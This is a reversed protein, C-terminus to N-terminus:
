AAEWGPTQDLVEPEPAPKVLESQQLMILTAAVEIADQITGHIAAEPCQRKIEDQLAWVLGTRNLM